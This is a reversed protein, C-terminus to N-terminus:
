ALQSWEMGVGGNEKLVVKIKEEWRSHPRRFPIKREPKVVLFMCANKKEGIRTVHGM